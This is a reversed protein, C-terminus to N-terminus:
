NEAKDEKTEESEIEQLDTESKELKEPLDEIGESKSAQLNSTKEVEDEKLEESNDEREPMPAELIEEIVIQENEDLKYRPLEPLEDLSSIGFMKMFQNTVKYMTPRGPADLRGAEEILGIELLKYITGDSGVGRIAEIQARTIKPNYAIISLTELAANSITPKTRNDFLPYIYEYLDKKTCLQYSDEVKILEIGSDESEYKLKMNQMIKEIDESGIELINMIEKITVERGSSFLMAEIIAQEKKLEM